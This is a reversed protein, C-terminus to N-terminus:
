IRVSYQVLKEERRKGLEEILFPIAFVKNKIIDLVHYSLIMKNIKQRHLYYWKKLITVIVMELNVYCFSSFRVFLICVLVVLLLFDILQM